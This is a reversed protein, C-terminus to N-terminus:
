ELEIVLKGEDDSSSSREEEETYSQPANPETFNSHISSTCTPNPQICSSNTQNSCLPHTYAPTTKIIQCHETNYSSTVCPENLMSIRAAGDTEREPLPRQEQSIASHTLRWASNKTQPETQVEKQIANLLLPHALLHRVDGPGRSIPKFRECHGVHEKVNTNSQNMQKPPGNASNERFHDKDALCKSEHSPNTIGCIAPTTSISVLEPSSASVNTLHQSISLDPNPKLSIHYGESCKAEQKFCLFLPQLIDAFRM